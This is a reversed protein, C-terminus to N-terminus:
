SHFNLAIKITPAIIWAAIGAIPPHLRSPSRPAFDFWDDLIGRAYEQYFTPLIM